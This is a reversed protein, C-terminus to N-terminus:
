NAVRHSTRNADKDHDIRRQNFNNLAKTDGRKMRRLMRASLATLGGTSAAGAALFAANAICVPCIM